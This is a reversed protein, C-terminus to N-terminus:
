SRIAARAKYVADLRTAAAAWTLEDRRRLTTARLRALLGRDGDLTRLHDTLAETDGASHVLAQDPHRCSAGAADSVLLVCGSAQAEYTVLASGEEVSPLMLIDCGRMVAGVDHVFGLAKVSRHALLPSLRKRYDALLDGCIV